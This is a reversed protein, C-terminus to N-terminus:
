VGLNKRIYERSISACEKPSRGKSLGENGNQEVTIWGSYARNKIFQFIDVYNCYGEGVPTNLGTDPHWDKFEILDMRDWYKELFKIAREGIPQNVFDLTAHGVDCMVYFSEPDTLKLLEEMDELTEGTNGTHHHYTAHINYEISISGIHSLLNGLAAFDGKEKGNGGVCVLHICNLEQMFKCVRRYLDFNSHVGVNISALELDFEKLIRDFEKPNDIYDKWSGEAFGSIGDYGAEKVEKLWPIFENKNPNNWLLSMAAIKITVYIRGKWRPNYKLM